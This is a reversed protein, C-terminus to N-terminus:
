IWVGFDALRESEADYSGDPFYCKVELVQGAEPTESQRSSFVPEIQAPRTVTPNPNPALLTAM